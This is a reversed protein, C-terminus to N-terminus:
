SFLIGLNVFSSFTSLSFFHRLILNRSGQLNHGNFPKKTNMIIIFLSTALAAFLTIATTPFEPISIKYSWASWGHITCHARAMVQPMGQIPGLNLEVTFTNNTQPQLAFTKVQGDINVEVLDVYHISSPNSHTITVRIRGNSPYSSQVLPAGPINAKAGVVFSSLALISIVTLFAARFFIRRGIM